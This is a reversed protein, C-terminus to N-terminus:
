KRKRWGCDKNPNKKVTLFERVWNKKRFDPNNLKIPEGVYTSRLKVPFIFKDYDKYAIKGKYSYEYKNKAENYTFTQNKNTLQMYQLPVPDMGCGMFHSNDKNMKPLIHKIIFFEDSRYGPVTWKSLLQEVNPLFPKASNSWLGYDYPEFERGTEKDPLLRHKSVVGFMGALAPNAHGLQESSNDWMRHFQKGSLRWQNVAYQEKMNLRSDADRFIVRCTEALALLRWSSRQLGTLNCKKIIHVQAGLELLQNIIGKPVTNDVYFRCTWGPYVHNALEVNEIAGQTYFPKDGYLSFCILLKPNTRQYRWQKDIVYKSM